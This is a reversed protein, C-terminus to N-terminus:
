DRTSRVPTGDQDFMTTGIERGNRDYQWRITAVGLRRDAKSRQDAGLYREEVTNWDADYQWRVTAVGRNKDETRQGDAGFYSEEVTKGHTGYGWRVAAVGRLRDGTPRGDAGFYSEELTNGQRDYRWRVIAVGRRGDAKLQENAGLHSEEIMRGQGDYRWRLIALGSGKDEVLEGGAGLNRWEVPNGSWDHRLQLAYLGGANPAPRGDPGLFTRTETSGSYEVRVSAVGFSPDPTATGRRQYDVRAIRGDPRYIFRYCDSDDTTPAAGAYTGHIAYRNDLYMHPYCRAETRVAETRATACGTLVAAAMGLAALLPNHRNVGRRM